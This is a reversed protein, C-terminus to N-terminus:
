SSGPWTRRPRPRRRELSEFEFLAKVQRMAQASIAAQGERVRALDRATDLLTGLRDDETPDGARSVHIRGIHIGAGPRRAVDLSRLAVLACRTAM